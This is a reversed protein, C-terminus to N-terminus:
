VVRDAFRVCKQGGRYEYHWTFGSGMKRGSFKKALLIAGACTGFINPISRIEDWCNERTILRSLVTSEGGPIILADLEM